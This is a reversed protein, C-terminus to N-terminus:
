LDPTPATRATNARWDHASLSYLVHRRLWHGAELSPHDFDRAPDHRMGIRQMVRQSRVNPVATFSVIEALSLTEFGYELVALAGESAYGFGWYPKDLRWGIEVLSQDFRPVALGIFGIFDAVGPVEVAWKGWGHADIFEIDAEVRERTQEYSATAPFFEMVEPDACM